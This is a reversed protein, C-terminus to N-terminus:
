SFKRGGEQVNGFRKNLWYFDKGALAYYRKELVGLFIAFPHNDSMMCVGVSKKISQVLSATTFITMLVQTYM